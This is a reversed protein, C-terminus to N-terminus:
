KVEKNKNKNSLNLRKSKMNEIKRDIYDKFRNYSDSSSAIKQIDIFSGNEFAVIVMGEDEKEALVVKDPKIRQELVFREISGYVNNITNYIDEISKPAFAIKKDTERYYFWLNDLLEKSYYLNLFCGDRTITADLLGKDDIVQNKAYTKHIELSKVINNNPDFVMGKSVDKESYGNRDLFSSLEKSDILCDINSSKEKHEIVKIEKM